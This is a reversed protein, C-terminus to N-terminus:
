FFCCSNNILISILIISICNEQVSYRYIIEFRDKENKNGEKSSNLYSVSLLGSDKNYNQTINTNLEGGTTSKTSAEVVNAVEPYSGNIQPLNVVLEVKETPLYSGEEQKPQIELSSHIAIGKNTVEEKEEQFPVYEENKLEIGIEPPINDEAIAKSIGIGCISVNGYVLSIAMTTAVSKLIFKKLNM